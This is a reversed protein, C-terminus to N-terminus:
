IIHPAVLVNCLHFHRTFVSDGVSIIALINRNGVIISPTSSLPLYSSLISTNSTTDYSAGSDAFWETVVLPTLTM